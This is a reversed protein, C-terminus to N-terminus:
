VTLGGDVVLIQGTMFDSAASALYFATGTLEHPVAMRGAPTWAIVIEYNAAASWIAESFHTKIFGPAIA